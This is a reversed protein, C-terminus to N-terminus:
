SSRALHCHSAPLDVWRQRWDQRSSILHAVVKGRKGMQFNAIEFITGGKGVAGGGRAWGKEVVAAILTLAVIVPRIVAPIDLM